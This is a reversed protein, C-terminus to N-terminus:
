VSVPSATTIVASGPRRSSEFTSIYDEVMNLYGSHVQLKGLKGKSWLSLFSKTFIEDNSIGLPKMQITPYIITDGSSELSAESQTLAILKHKLEEQNSAIAKADVGPPQQKGDPLM